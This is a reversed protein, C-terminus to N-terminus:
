KNLFDKLFDFGGNDTDDSSFSFPSDSDDKSDLFLDFNSDKYDISKGDSETYDSSIDVYSDYSKIEKKIRETKNEEDLSDSMGEDINIVFPKKNKKESLFSAIEDEISLSVDAQAEAEASPKDVTISELDNIVSLDDDDNDDDELSFDNEKSVISEIFANIKRRREDFEDNRQAQIEEEVTFDPLKKIMELQEEYQLMIDNKFIETNEKLGNLYSRQVEIEKLIDELEERSVLAAGDVIESAKEKAKDLMLVSDEEAKETIKRAQRRADAFTDKIQGEVDRIMERIKENAIEDVNAAKEEAKSIIEQAKFKADTILREALSQANLLAQRINEEDDRYEDLKSAILNLKRVLEKNDLFVRDFTKIVEVFYEDVESAKYFGRGVTQFQHNRLNSPTLM